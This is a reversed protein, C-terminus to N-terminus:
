MVRVRSRRFCKKPGFWMGSDTNSLDIAVIEEASRIEVDTVNEMTRQM